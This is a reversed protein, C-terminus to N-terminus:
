RHDFAAHVVTKRHIGDGRHEGTMSSNQHM